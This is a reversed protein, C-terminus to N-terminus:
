DLHCNCECGLDKKTKTQPTLRQHHLCRHCLEDEILSCELHYYLLIHNNVSDYSSTIIREHWFLVYKGCFFCRNM